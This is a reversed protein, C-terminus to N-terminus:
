LKPQQKQCENEKREEASLQRFGINCLKNGYELKLEATIQDWEKKWQIRQMPTFREENM